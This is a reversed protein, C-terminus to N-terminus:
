LAFIEDEDVRAPYLKASQVPCMINGKEGRSHPNAPCFTCHDNPRLTLDRRMIRRDAEIAESMWSELFERTSTWSDINWQDRPGPQIVHYTIETALPALHLKCAAYFMLQDNDVPSVPIAGSKFDVVELRRASVITVDPTTGPKSPLWDAVLQEETRIEEDGALSGLLDALYGAAAEIWRLMKPTFPALKCMWLEDVYYHLQKDLWVRMLPADDALTKRKSVHLDQYDLIAPRVADLMWPPYHVLVELVEHVNTGIGKAVFKNPDPVPHEFGPIAEELRASGPCAILQAASSASFRKVKM